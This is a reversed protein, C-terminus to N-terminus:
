HNGPLAPSDSVAGALSPSVARALTRAADRVSQALERFEPEPDSLLLAARAYTKAARASDGLALSWQAQRLLSPILWPSAEVIFGLRASASLAEALHGRAALQDALYLSWLTIQARSLVAPEDGLYEAAARLVHRDPSRDLAGDIVRTCTMALARVRRNPHNRWGALLATLRAAAASDGYAAHWLGLSCADGVHATSDHDLTRALRAAVRGRDFWGPPFALAIAMEWGARSRHSVVHLDSTLIAMARGPRGRNMAYNALTYSDNAALSSDLPPLASMLAAARDAQTFGTTARQSWLVMWNWTSYQEQDLRRGFARLGATDGALEAAVWWLHSFHEPDRPHAVLYSRAFATDRQALRIEILHRQAEPTQDGLARVSDFSAAALRLHDPIGLMLGDHLLFDGLLMWALPRDPAMLTARRLGRLSERGNTERRHTYFIGDSVARDAASLREPFRRVVSDAMELALRHPSGDALWLSTEQYALAALAFTTDLEMAAQFSRLADLYRQERRAVAGDVYHRLAATSETLLQAAQHQHGAIQILLEALLRDLIGNVDMTDIVLQVQHLERGTRTATLAATLRRHSGDSVVTGTLYADAGAALAVNRARDADLESKWSEGHAALTLNIQQEGVARVGGTGDLLPMLGVPLAAALWRDRDDSGAYAFPLVAVTGPVLAKRPGARLALMLAGAAVVATVTLARVIRGPRPPPPTTSSAPRPPPAEAPVPSARPTTRIREALSLLDPDPKLELERQLAQRHREFLDFAAGQARIRTLGEMARRIVETQLPSKGAAWVFWRQATATDSTGEALTLSADIVTDHLSVRERDLWDSFPGAGTVHFAPLLEGAYGALAAEVRGAALHAMVELADCGIAAPIIRVEEDGRAEVVPGLHQRIQYIAQSLARRARRQDLEPWFIGLLEDRRFWGDPRALLLYVLLGTPKPKALLGLADAGGADTSLDLTGLTRLAPM